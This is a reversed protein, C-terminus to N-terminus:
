EMAVVYKHTNFKCFDNPGTVGLHAETGATPNGRNAYRRHGGATRWPRVCRGM